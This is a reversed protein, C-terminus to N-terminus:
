VGSGGRYGIRGGERSLWVELSVRLIGKAHSWSRVMRSPRNGFDALRDNRYQGSSQRGRVASRAPCRCYITVNSLVGALNQGTFASYAIQSYAGKAM